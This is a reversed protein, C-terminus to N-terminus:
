GEALLAAGLLAADYGVGSRELRLRRHDAELMRELAARRIAPLWPHLSEMVGGGLVVLEPDLLNAVFAVARGLDRAVGDLVAAARTDGAQAARFVGQADGGAPPPTAGGACAEAYRRAIAPGSVLAELCGRHGCACPPGGEELVMHGVEGALGAAGPHLQGGCVIAGGVGTSLQLWVFDRVGAAVGFRMEALCCANVDNDLRVPLGLRRALLAGLPVDRWGWDFARRVIGAGADAPGPVTLGVRVPRDAAPVDAVLAEWARGLHEVAQEPTPRAPTDLRLRRLVRGQADVLAVATKTGGFDIAGLPATGGV